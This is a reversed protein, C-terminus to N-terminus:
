MLFIPHINEFFIYFKVYRFNAPYSFTASHKGLLWSKVKAILRTIRKKKKVARQRYVSHTETFTFVNHLTTTTAKNKQKYFLLLQDTISHLM